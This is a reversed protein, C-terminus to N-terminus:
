ANDDGGTHTKFQPLPRTALINYYHITCLLTTFMAALCIASAGYFYIDHVPNIIMTGLSMIIAIVAGPFGKILKGIIPGSEKKKIAAVEFSYFLLTAISLALVIGLTIIPRFTFLLNLIIFIPIALILSGTIFKKEDIPLDAVVKGTQGNVTAYAVRDGKRYSMFWVPFMHLTAGDLKTHTKHVKDPVPKLTYKRLSKSRTIEHLTNEAAGDIAQRRYNEESVDSTDAYFGSLFSPTFRRAKTTDFPELYESISDAFSTSADHSFGVYRADIEGQIEYEKEIRYDGSRRSTSGYLTVPGEQSIDYVWYPMYIGRFSDICKEDKADAPIFPSKSVLKMYANKCMNKTKTFPIIKAPKREKSIRSDLITSADCFSCFTAATEDTSLIQGACQPCTFVTVDYETSEEADRDKTFDYPSMTTDCHNCLLMEKSISYKLNGGCNPCEYM